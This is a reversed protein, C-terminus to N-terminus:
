RSAPRSFCGTGSRCGSDGEVNFLGWGFLMWGTLVRLLLFIGVLTAVWVVSHFLGDALMNTRMNAMSDLPIVLARGTPSGFPSWHIGHSLAAVRRLPM